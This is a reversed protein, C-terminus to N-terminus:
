PRLKRRSRRDFASRASPRCIAFGVPHDASLHIKVEVVIVFLQDSEWFRLQATIHDAPASSITWSARSFLGSAEHETLPNRFDM